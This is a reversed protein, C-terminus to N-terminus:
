VFFIETNGIENPKVYDVSGDPFNIKLSGLEYNFYDVNGTHWGNTYLAKIKRGVFEHDFDRAEHYDSFIYAVRLCCRAKLQSM